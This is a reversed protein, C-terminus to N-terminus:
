RRGEALESAYLAFKATYDSHGVAQREVKELETMTAPPLDREERIFNVEDLMVQMEYAHWDGGRARFQQATTLAQRCLRHSFRVSNV